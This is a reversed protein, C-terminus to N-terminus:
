KSIVLKATRLDSEQTATIIYLGASLGDLGIIRFSNYGAIAQVVWTKAIRGNIDHATLKVPGGKKFDGSVVFSEKAPSPYVQLTPDAPIDNTVKIIISYKYTGDMDVMKLRYFNNGSMYETDAFAYRGMGQPRLANIRAISIFHVGDFSRELDFHSLNIESETVWSVVNATDTRKAGFFSLEVPLPQSGCWPFIKSSDVKSLGAADTVTLKIFWYYTETNCGIRSIIKTTTKNTDIPENHQHNNHRLSVQWQYSLQSSIHEADTVTAKLTYATDAGLTYYSNKIPSTITVNPPTNNTSIILSDTGTVNGADKVTLKVVYKKPATGSTTFTHSPNAATSTNSGSTPDGFDWAYTLATGEPDYSTNGTFSVALPSAGYTKNSTMKVVPPQNGGYKLVNVSNDGMDIYYLNSDLPNFSIHVVALLGTGFDTVSQVKDNFQINVSKMWTGGLDATFFTNQYQPPYKTGLYFCGGIACNGAFPTGTVGSSGTGIQAVALNNTPFIGVRSSDVGHKWDLSPIRHFNRNNNGVNIAVTGNCPNYVTHINDATAQKILNRFRFYQQTCGSIGYLPNAEDKNFTNCLSYSSQPTLGEFNPWGCNQAPARLINLEEYNNWGVDGVYIDGPDGATASSAGTNPKVSFRFPNRFGMAWVRSAASRPTASQYFPNSAVGNGNTPDLRLIKGDLSNVMQSRFAGVNENSRIIGDTIAQSYYTEALSGSDTTNYSAADGASALLTGDAAFALSGIGHSEHLIPIGTTKSEGLLITRTTLDAVLNGSSTITKYRTIRGITAKFYDDTASSYFGTGFNMLYHRDVVYMVYFLGNTSYNPDLAFGLMGHDRWNGVEPSIDLVATTQKVYIQSTSNWNCVYVRGGKEWVFMKLGDKTFATGVPENWGSGVLTKSFGAPFVAQARSQQFAMVSFCLCALVVARCRAGTYKKM